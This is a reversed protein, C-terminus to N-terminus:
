RAKMRKEPHAVLYANRSWASIEVEVVGDGVVRAQCGLRSNDRVDPALRLTDEEDEDRASLLDAGAVVYVHCTSCSCCGGCDSGEPADIEQAADLIRTGVPVQVEGAGRFRVVTM